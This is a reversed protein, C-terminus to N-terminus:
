YLLESEQNTAYRLEREYGKDKNKRVAIPQILGNKKISQALENIKKEDFYNRPQFRNRNLDSISVLLYSSNPDIKRISEKEDKSSEVQDGFLSMLGRGLGKKNKEDIM